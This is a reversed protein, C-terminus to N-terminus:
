VHGSEGGEDDCPDRRAHHDHSGPYVRNGRCGQDHARRLHDSPRKQVDRHPCISRISESHRNQSADASGADFKDFDYWLTSFPASNLVDRLMPEFAELSQVNGVGSQESAEEHSIRYGRWREAMPNKPHVFVVEEVEGGGNNVAMFVSDAQLIGTLYFFNRNAFFPYRADATKRPSSGAFLILVEGKELHEYFRQRRIRHINNM